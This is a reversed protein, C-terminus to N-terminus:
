VELFKEWDYVETNNTFERWDLGNAQSSQVMQTISKPTYKKIGVIKEASMKVKKNTIIQAIAAQMLQNYLDDNGNQLTSLFADQKIALLAEAQSVGQAEFVKLLESYQQKDNIDVEQINEATNGSVIKKSTSPALKNDGENNLLGRIVAIAKDPIDGNADFGTSDAASIIAKDVETKERGKFYKYVDVRKM